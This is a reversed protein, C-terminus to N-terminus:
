GYNVSQVQAIAGYASLDIEDNSAKDIFQEALSDGYDPSELGDSKMQEKTQIDDVKQNAMNRKISSLHARLKEIDDIGEEDIKIRGERFYKELTIYNQVRRNRYLDPHDSTEGGVHRIVNYGKKMLYGATGAGVGTSDVVFDDFNKRGDFGEFMRIATEAADIIAESPNFHFSKQKLIHVFTEYHIAATIVTADAGGDAVDVSIRLHPHSGDPEMDADIADEFHELNILVYDDFAAFEGLARIKYIPSQTGYKTAMDALWQQSILEPADSPKIHMRYYLGKCSKDNHHKYFEGDLRTPNGIEVVCSGATTLAGEITPYMPDLKKGSAEDILFLQPKDHYGALSEPDTATELSAGWDKDCGINIERGLVNIMEKYSPLANRMVGRYRPLLRKTLQQQKPATCAIQGYTTFNWLHMLMALFQTKGTGHCSRITLRPKKAKNYKPKDRRLDMVVDFGELQWQLAPFKVVNDFFWQPCNIAKQKAIQATTTM